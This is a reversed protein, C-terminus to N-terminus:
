YQGKTVPGAVKYCQCSVDYRDPMFYDTFDTKGQSYSGGLSIPLSGPGLRQAAAVLGQRTLTRGSGASIRRLLEVDACIINYPGEEGFAFQKKGPNAKNYYERCDKEIAPETRGQTSLFTQGTFGIVNSLSRSPGRRILGDTALAGIDSTLYTPFYNQQEAQQMFTIALLFNTCLMVQEVGASKMKQVEVPIQSAASGQDATFQSRLTIPQGRQALTAEVVDGPLEEVGGDKTNVLGVKKGKSLGSALLFASWNRAIRQLSPQQTIMYNNSERFVSELEAQLTAVPIRYQVAACSGATYTFGTLAFVQEDKAMRVCIAPGSNAGSSSLPDYTAYVPQITRGNVGGADNVRKFYTDFTRRQTDLDFNKLGLGLPTLASLDLLVAGIKITTPTVGQDSATLPDGAAAARGGPAAAVPGAAAPVGANAGVAASGGNAILGAGPAGGQGPLVAPAGGAPAGAIPGQGAGKVAPGATPLSGNNVAGSATLRDTKSTALALPVVLGLSLLSATVATFTRAVPSPSTAGPRNREPSGM